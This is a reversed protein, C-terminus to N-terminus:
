FIKFMLEYEPQSSSGIIKAHQRIFPQKTGRIMYITHTKKIAEKIGYFIRIFDWADTFKLSEVSIFERSFLTPETFLMSSVSFFAFLNDIM